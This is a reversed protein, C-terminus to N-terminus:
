LELEAASTADERQANYEDAIKDLLAAMRYGALAVQKELIPAADEYYQGSLEQDHIAQPGQPLVHSCVIANAERSWALATGNTDAMDIGKVWSDREEAWRGTEIEATLQEAWRRGLVYARKGRGSGGLWRELIATDWVFHLNREAGAWRVYIGNGGRAVDENHLPQHLDGVFHVVFKAAQARRWAPLARDYAQTTYNTLSSVVCGTQKCDRELDVNCAHPPQDHADIFHFTSTFRGWKTYRISDAWSAISALYDDDTRQLLEKLYVETSNAIFNSAIYATTIHGLSGWATVAPLSLLGCTVAANLRM